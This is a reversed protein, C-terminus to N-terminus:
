ALPQPERRTCSCLEGALCRSGSESGTRLRLGSRRTVSSTSARAMAGGRVQLLEMQEYLVFLTRRWQLEGAHLRPTSGLVEQAVLGEFRGIGQMAHM